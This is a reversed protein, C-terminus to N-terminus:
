VILLYLKGKLISCQAIEITDGNTDYYPLGFNPVYYLLGFDTSIKDMTSINFEHIKGDLLVVGLTDNHLFLNKQITAYLDHGLIQYNINFFSMNTINIHVIFNGRYTVDHIKILEGENEYIQTFDIPFIREEFPEKTMRIFKFNKHINNYAEELTFNINVEIDLIKFNHITKLIEMLNM